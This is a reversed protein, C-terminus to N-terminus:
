GSGSGSLLTWMPGDMSGLTSSIPSSSAALETNSSTSGGLVSRAAAVSNIVTATEDTDAENFPRDGLRCIGSRKRRKLFVTREQSVWSSSARAAFVSTEPFFEIPELKARAYYLRFLSTCPIPCSEVRLHLWPDTYLLSM